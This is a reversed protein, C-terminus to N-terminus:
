RTGAVEGLGDERRGPHLRVCTFMYMRLLNLLLINKDDKKLENLKASIESLAM